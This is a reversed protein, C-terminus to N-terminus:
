VQLEESLHLKIVYLPLTLHLIFTTNEFYQPTIALFENIVEISSGRIVETCVLILM